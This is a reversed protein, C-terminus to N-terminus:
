LKIISHADVLLLLVTLVFIITIFIPFYSIAFGKSAKFGNLKFSFRLLMFWSVIMFPIGIIPIFVALKNNLEASLNLDSVIERIALSGWIGYIFFSFLFIQQYLLIQLLPKQHLQFLQYSILIGIVAMGASIIFTAIYFIYEIQM